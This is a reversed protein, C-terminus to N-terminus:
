YVECYGRRCTGSACPSTDSCTACSTEGTAREEYYCTCPDTPAYSYLPGLDSDRWVQMACEPITGNDITIDLIPVTPTAPTEGTFYGIVRRTDPDTIAGSGDVPVYFHYSSWLFYHGDRINVKDFTTATSDPWYGCDQDTHQYALTRVATRSADAVESSVFGIAAEPNTATDLATIMAGNTRVDLCPQGSGALGCVFRDAPVGIALGLAILAASTANRGFIQGPETWPSVGGSPGFGYVFYLAEASISTQSSETPVLVSWGTVPGAFDGIGTPLATVGSCLTAATGMMGFDPTLGATPLRCTQETGDPLWYNATGTVPTGDVYPTIGFCAGPSAYILTTPEALGALTAGLRALLPKSASGGVGIVARPLSTCEVQARGISPSSLALAVFAALTLAFHPLRGRASARLGTPPRTRNVRLLSTQM